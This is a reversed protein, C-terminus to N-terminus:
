SVPRDPRASEEGLCDTLARRLDQIQFPKRLVPVNNWEEDIGASGYGTSFVFPVRDSQLRKALPFSREGELNVDLIVVDLKEEDILQMADDLRGTVAAVEFGLDVLMDEILLAVLGEDEVVLVRRLGTDNVVFDGRL